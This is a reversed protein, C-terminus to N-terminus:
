GDAKDRRWIERTPGASDGGPASLDEIQSEIRDLRRMIAAADDYKLKTEMMSRSTKILTDMIKILEMRDKAAPPAEAMLIGVLDLAAAPDLGSRAIGRIKDLFEPSLPAPERDTSDELRDSKTKRRGKKARDTRAEVMHPDEM